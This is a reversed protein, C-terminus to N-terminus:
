MWIANNGFVGNYWIGGEWLGSNFLGNTWIGSKWNCNGFNSVVRLGLDVPPTVFLNINKNVYVDTRGNLRDEITNLVIYNQPNSNSGFVSYSGGIQNDIISIQDNSNFKFIGNLTFYNESSLTSGTLGIIQIDELIGGHWTGSKFDMNYVIGGYFNGSFWKGTYWISYKHVDAVDYQGSDNFNLRSHFSGSIWKGGHWIATRSNYANTGFRAESKKQEFLGNYWMGNEFDGGNWTGDLWYAPETNTNFIGGNWTGLVWIGGSFEGGNWTGDNWIGKYWEGTNWTGGYWRGNTWTGNNWTGDYWRGNIWTSYDTGTSREDVEVNIFNDKVLKSNWTGGYWDGSKWLGSQWIGSFWRGCEWTGKYWVLEGGVQGIVAGSIEAEYIWGYNSALSEINLGDVLRFRYKSFDVGVLSFTAGTQLTNEPSLEIAIKGRKDIGVDILDVPQYNLFPDQTTFKVNGIDNGVLPTNGYPLDLYFNYENVKKIPHYGFYQQNIFASSGTIGTFELVVGEQDKLGHKQSCSIFLKGAFNATNLIPVSSEKGLKTINMAYEGKYDTYLLGSLSQTTDVDSLLIKAYSDTNIKFNTERQFQSFEVFWLNQGSGALYKTVADPRQILNLQQLDQSIQQLTRRSIIDCKYLPSNVSYNLRKHFEIVYFNSQSVQDFLAYKKTVLARTTTTVSSATAYLNIDVFTNLFISTWEFELNAGFLIRNDQRNSVTIGQAATMGNYDVYVTDLDFSGVGPMPLDRYDPMALYEKTAFFKPNPDGVENISELYDLLNYTPSYGFKMFETSYSMTLSSNHTNVGTALNYYSTYNNFKSEIQAVSSTGQFSLSYAKSIPHLNFRDVLQTDNGYRNLNTLSISFSAGLQKLIGDNFETFMYAYTNGSLTAIKNVVFNSSVVNSDFRIVDGVSVAYAPPLKAVMLYDYFYLDYSFTPASIATLGIGYFRGHDPDGITPALSKISLLDPVFHGTQVVDFNLVFASFTSVNFVTSSTDYSFTTSLLIKTAQTMPNQSYFEFTMQSDRWYDLWNTESQTVFSPATAGYTLPTFDLYTGAGATFSFTVSNPLRYEGSDTFFNLKAGTDYDLFLLKSKLRSEFNLDLVGFNLPSSYTASQLLSENGCILLEQGLYDIIENGYLTSEYLASQTSLITNSYSNGVGISQFNSLNFSFLGADETLEEIGTFYFDNTGLKRTINRIDSYKAPFDLYLFDFNTTGNVDYVIIKSDDTALFILEKDPAISQTSYSYALNWSTLTTYFIDNINDVLLYEDDDDLARSIRRNFASWGYIDKKFEVFVGVNGIAYFSNASTHIAKTFYVADFASIQLDIWNLGGNETYYVTNLDGVVVGRLENFFSISRLNNTTPLSLRQILFDHKRVKLLVGDDGAIFYFKQTQSISRLNVKYKNPIINSVGVQTNLIIGFEGVALTREPISYTIGELNYQQLPNKMLDYYNIEFLNNYDVKNRLLWNKSEIFEVPENQSGSPFYGNLLRELHFQKDTNLLGTKVLVSFRRCNDYDELDAEKVLQGNQYLYIGNESSATRYQITAGFNQIVEYGAVFYVDPDVTNALTVQSLQDKVLVRHGNVLRVGDIVRNDKALSLDLIQETSAVDVSIYNKIGDKILRQPTFLNKLTLGYEGLYKTYYDYSNTAYIPAAYEAPIGTNSYVSAATTIYWNRPRYSVLIDYINQLQYVPLYTAGSLCKSYFRVSSLEQKLLDYDETKLTDIPSEWSKFDSNYTWM